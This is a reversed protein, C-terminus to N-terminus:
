WTSERRLLYTDMIWGYRQKLEQKAREIDVAVEVLRGSMLVQEPTGLYAGWYIDFSRDAFRRFSLGADLM